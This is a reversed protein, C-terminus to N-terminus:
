HKCGGGGCSGIGAFCAASERTEEVASERADEETYDMGILTKYSELAAEVGAAAADVFGAKSLAM